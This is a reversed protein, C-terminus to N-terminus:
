TAPRTSILAWCGAAPTSFVEQASGDPEHAPHQRQAGHHSSATRGIAIHEPSIEGRLDIMQLNPWASTPRTRGWPLGARAPRGPWPAIPVPWALLYALAPQGAVAGVAILLKKFM